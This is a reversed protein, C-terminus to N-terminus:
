KILDVGGYSSNIDVTATPKGKGVVGKVTKSTNESISSIRDNDPYNIDAYKVFANLSYSAERAIGLDLKGYANEVDISEFSAPITEVEFGSYKIRVDIKKAVNKVNYHSYKGTLVFNSLSGINYGDYASEAVLSSASEISAKSYKSILILAKAKDITAM